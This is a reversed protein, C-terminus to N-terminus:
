VGGDETSVSANRVWLWRRKCYTTLKIVQYLSHSCTKALYAIIVAIGSMEELELYESYLLNVIHLVYGLHYGEQIYIVTHHKM